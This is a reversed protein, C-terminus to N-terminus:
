WHFQHKIYFCKSYKDESRRQAALTDCEQEHKLFDQLMTRQQKFFLNDAESQHKRKRSFTPTQPPTDVPSAIERIDQPTIDESIEIEVLSQVPESSSQYTIVASDIGTLQSTPRSGLIEDLLSFYECENRTEGSLQNQEICSTYAAKLAKWKNKIQDPTKTTIGRKLLETHIKNFIETNKYRKGDFLKNIEIESCRQLLM